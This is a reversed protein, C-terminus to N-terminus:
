SENAPPTQNKLIAKAKRLVHSINIGQIAGETLQLSFTGVLMKQLDELTTVVSDLKVVADMAGSVLNKGTLDNLLLGIQVQNITDDLYIHPPNTQAELLLQGNYNGHYLNMKPLVTIKGDKGSVMLQINTMKVGAVKLDAIRLSGELNLAQLKQLTEVSLLPNTLATASKEPIKQTKEGKKIEKPPLYRDIDVSGLQLEFGIAPTKFNQLTIKGQLLHNDLQIKLNKLSLDSLNTDLQTELTLSKLANKDSMQPLTQNFKKLLLRPDFTNVKLQGTIALPQKFMQASLQGQATLGFSKIALHAITIQDNSIDIQIKPINLQQEDIMLQLDTLTMQSLHGQLGVKFSATTLPTPLTPVPQGFQKLIEQPNATLNLAGEITPQATALQALKFQGTLTAGLAKLSFENLDLNNNTLNFEIKPIDLTNKSLKLQINALNLKDANAIFQATLSVRDIMLHDPLTLVPLGFHKAWKEPNFENVQLQGQALPQTLLQQVQVTGQLTLQDETGAFRIQWDSQINQQKLDTKIQPSTITLKQQHNPINEGTVDVILQSDVFQYLQQELDITLQTNLDVTGQMPKAHNYVFASTLKVQIPQHLTIMGTQLHLENLHLATQTTQDNWTVKAQTLELGSIQFPLMPKDGAPATKKQLLDEWNNHGDAHRTLYLEVGELQVTDIELQQKFLPLVKIRTKAHAMKAFAPEQFGAANSLHISGIEFGLWPFFTLKIDGEMVLDRGTETKVLNIIQPKYANPNIVFIIVLIAAATLVVVISIVSLLVKVWKKM